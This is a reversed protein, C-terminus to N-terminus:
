HRVSLSRTKLGVLYCPDKTKDQLQQKLQMATEFRAIRPYVLLHYKKNDGGMIRYVDWVTGAKDGEKLHASIRARKIPSTPYSIV